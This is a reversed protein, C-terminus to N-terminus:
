EEAKVFADVIDNIQKDIKILNKLKIFSKFKRTLYVKNSNKYMYKCLKLISSTDNCVIDYYKNDAISKKCHITLDIDLESKICEKLGKSMLESGTTIQWCKGEFM